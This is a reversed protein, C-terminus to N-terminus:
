DEKIVADSVEHQPVLAGPVARRGLECYFGGEAGMQGAIGSGKAEIAVAQEATKTM